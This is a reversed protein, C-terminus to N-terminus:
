KFVRLVDAASLKVYHGPKLNGIQLKGIGVRKLRKVDYGIKEFMKRVQRNKGEDVAIKIWAYKKSEGKNMREVYEAKVRGGGAISVGKKLRDLQADTPIGDVKALYIKPVKKQPHAVYHAFDGDNTLLLLGESDWDLRGVPFVREKIKAALDGVTLRGEPDSLTTLVQTPKNLMYYVKNGQAKVPRGKVRVEDSRPDIKVGLETVARGNVKVLGEKILEDAKRRSAVGCEAIFRNIRILNPNKPM